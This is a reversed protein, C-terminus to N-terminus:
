RQNQRHWDSITQPSAPCVLKASLAGAHGRNSEEGERAETGQGESRYVKKGRGTWVLRKSATDYM